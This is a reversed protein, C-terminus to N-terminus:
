QYYVFNKVLIMHVIKQKKTSKKGNEMEIIVMQIRGGTRACRQRRHKEIITYIAAFTFDNDVAHRTEKGQLRKGAREEM